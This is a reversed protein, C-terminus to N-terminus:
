SANQLYANHLFCNSQFLFYDAVGHIITNPLCYVMGSNVVLHYEFVLDKQCLKIGDKSFCNSFCLLDRSPLIKCAFSQVMLITVM